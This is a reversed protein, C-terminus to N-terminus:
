KLSKLLEENMMQYDRNEAKKAANLSANASATAAAKDGLAKEIKAKQHWVWFADPNAQAAVTIWERAQKLDKGNEFYYTAAQFLNNPNVKTSAEISKMVQADYDVSITFKVSTNEWALQVKANKSDASIDGITFTLTEVKEALKTPKVKFKAADKSADYGNMNGGIMEKHLSVTWETEGPWTLIQYKGKPVAVGEVKVDDSFTIISGGNAGSRWIKGYPVLTTPDNSFIKRGKTSPRFYDIQVETLGVTTSVSGPPSPQPALVQADAVYTIIALAVLILSKKM